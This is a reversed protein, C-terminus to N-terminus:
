PSPRTPSTPPSWRPTCRSRPPSCRRGAGARGALVAARVRRRASVRVTRGAGSRVPGGARGGAAGGRRRDARVPRVARRDRHVARVGAGDAAPGALDVAREVRRVDRGAARVGAVPRPSHRLVSPLAALGAFLAGERRRERRCSSRPRSGWSSPSCPRARSCGAGASPRGPWDAWCGPGSSAPSCVRSSPRSMVPVGTPPPANPSWRSSCSPSSPRPRPSSCPSRSLPPARPPRVPAAARGHHRAHARRGSPAPERQGRAPRLVAPRGRLRAPRGLRDLRRGLPGLRLRPGHAPAAARRPLHQRRHGRQVRRDPHPLPGPRAYPAPRVPPGAPAAASTTTTASPM